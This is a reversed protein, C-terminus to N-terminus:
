HKFEQKTELKKYLKSIARHHRSLLTGEPIETEASLESYTYGEFDIALIIEQYIPKLESIAIKLKLVRKEKELENSKEYILETFEALQKNLLDDIYTKQKKTRMIDIIKNRISNYVFGAINNIPSLNDARSFIKLAVDQIIDDADRETTEIIKSNVYTRLSNYENNFFEKFRYYNKTKSAMLFEKRVDM